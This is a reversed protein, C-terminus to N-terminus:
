DNSFSLSQSVQTSLSLSLSLSSPPCVNVTAGKTNHTRETIAQRHRRPQKPPFGFAAAEGRDMHANTPFSGSVRLWEVNSDVSGNVQPKEVSVGSEQEM